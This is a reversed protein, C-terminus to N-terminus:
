LNRIIDKYANGREAFNRFCDFSASAPSLTVIDGPKAASAAALVAKKFDPEEIIMPMSDPRFAQELSAQEVAAKIKPGTQGTLVLIKVKDRIVPGLADYPIKKDYGGAILIVKREYSLLEAITRTPSTAITNNIFKVGNKELIFENRHEVGKFRKAAARCADLGAIDYVACFAAMINEINYLGPLLVDTRDLVHTEKGYEILSIAEGDFFFGDKPRETRSFHRVRGKKNETFAKTQEYDSNLVLLDNDKQHLFINMKATVYEEMDSHYDLHNPTINTVVAINPSSKMTMLQFSSLELVAYDSPKIHGADSLLPNGINGGLHVSFGAETLLESILTTTTTKGESGTVAIIPCSCVEFFAEMESTVVSGSESARKLEPTNPSLGPTRFIVNENLDKLYDPGLIFVAGMQELESLEKGFEGAPRKDRARVPIGAELLLRILPINSVGIGIVSVSKGHLSKLYESLLM